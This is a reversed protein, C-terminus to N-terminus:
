IDSHFEGGYEQPLNPPPEDGSKPTRDEDHPSESAAPAAPAAPVAPAAPTAPTVPAAPVA